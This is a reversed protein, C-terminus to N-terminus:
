KSQEMENLLERWESLVLNVEAITLDYERRNEETPSILVQAAALAANLRLNASLQALDGARKLKDLKTEINM